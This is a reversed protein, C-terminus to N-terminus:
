MPWASDAEKILNHPSSQGGGLPLTAKNGMM